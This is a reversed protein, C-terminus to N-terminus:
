AANGYGCSSIIGRKSGRIFTAKCVGPLEAVLAHTDDNKLIRTRRSTELGTEYVIYRGDPSFRGARGDNTIEHSRYLEGTTLAIRELYDDGGPGNLLQIYGNLAVVYDGRRWASTAADFTAGTGAARLAVVAVAALLSGIALKRM